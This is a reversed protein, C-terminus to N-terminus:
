NTRKTYSLQKTKEGEKVDLHFLAKNNNNNNVINVDYYLKKSM